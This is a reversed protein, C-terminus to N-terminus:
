EVMCKIIRCGKILVQCGVTRRKQPIQRRRPSILPNFKLILEM